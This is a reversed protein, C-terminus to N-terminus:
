PFPTACVCKGENQPWAPLDLLRVVSGPNFSKSQEYLDGHRM